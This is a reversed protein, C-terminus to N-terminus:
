YERDRKLQYTPTGSPPNYQTITLEDSDDSDDGQPTASNSNPTRDLSHVQWRLTQYLEHGVESCQRCEAPSGTVSGDLATDSGQPKTPMCKFSSRSKASESSDASETSVASVVSECLPQVCLPASTIRQETPQISSLRLRGHRSGHITSLHTLQLLIM